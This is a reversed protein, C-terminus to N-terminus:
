GLSLIVLLGQMLVNVTWHAVTPAVLNGTRLRLLSFILGAIALPAASGLYLLPWPVVAATLNTQQIGQYTIVTHWVVFLGISLAIGRRPGLWRTGRQQILGRFLIEEFIATGNRLVVILLAIPLLGRDPATLAEARVAEPLVIPFAFFIMPLVAMAIGTALGWTASWRLKERHLGLEALSLREVRFIWWFIALWLLGVAVSAPLEHEKGAGLWAMLLNNAVIVAGVFVLFRLDRSTSDTTREVPDDTGPVNM